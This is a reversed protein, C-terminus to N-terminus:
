PDQRLIDIIASIAQDNAYVAHGSNVVTTSQAGALLASELPVVGDGPPNEGPLNGAITYYRIGAAPLLSAGARSVPQVSSLTSISNLGNLRYAKLLAPRIGSQNADIVRRLAKLEPDEPRVLRVAVRGIFHGTMPSGHHPAALFIAKGVDPCATFHFLRDLLDLDDPRGQLQTLPLRGFAQWVAEGSNATLLRALVGGMSHGILVMSRRARQQRQPDLQTLARDLFQQVRLRDVLLPANTEYVVHWIQFRARLEPTALIRNTLRAWVLPSGGLGHIMVIITKGPDYDQLLFVGQRQRMRTGGLLTWVALRQLRSAAMLTAYPASLDLSLPYAHGALVITPQRQPDVLVLRPVEGERWEIWATVARYVGEAPFLSCRPQKCRDTRAVLPVGFGSTVFRPGASKPVRVEDSLRLSVPGTLEPSINRVDVRLPKGAVNITTAIWETSRSALLHALLGRTCM